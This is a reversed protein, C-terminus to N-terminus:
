EEDDAAAQFEPIAALIGITALGLSAVIFAGSKAVDPGDNLTLIPDEPVAIPWLPNGTLLEHIICGTVGMMAARGNNREVNLKFERGFYGPKDEYRVWLADSAVNGPDKEPDQKLISNDLLAIISVIQIWGLTPLADWSSIAGGPMDAFKIGESYSLYGPFRAGSATTIIGLFGAMALRGHKIEMEQFRRYKEPSKTMLGLPDFVGLPPTTGVDGESIASMRLAPKGAGLTVSPAQFAQAVGVFTALAALTNM